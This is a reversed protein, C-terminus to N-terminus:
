GVRRSCGGPGAYDREFLHVLEYDYEVFCEHRGVRHHGGAGSYRVVRSSGCGAPLRRGVRAASTCSLFVVWERLECLLIQSSQEHHERWQGRSLSLGFLVGRMRALRVNRDVIVKM